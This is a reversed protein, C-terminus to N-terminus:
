AEDESVAGDVCYCVSGSKAADLVAKALNKNLTDFNRSSLFVGDLTQVTYGELSRFSETQSTRALIKDATDLASKASLTLDKERVGLGILTIM